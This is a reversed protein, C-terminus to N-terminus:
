GVAVWGIWEKNKCTAHKPLLVVDFPNYWCDLRQLESVESMVSDYEMFSLNPLSRTHELNQLIRVYSMSEIILERIQNLLLRKFDDRRNNVFVSECMLM